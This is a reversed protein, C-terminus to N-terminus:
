TEPAWVKSILNVPSIHIALVVVGGRGEHKRGNIASLGSCFIM